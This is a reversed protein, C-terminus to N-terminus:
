RADAASHHQQESKEKMSLVIDAIEFPALLFSIISGDRRSTTSVQLLTVVTPHYYLLVRHYPLYQLIYM